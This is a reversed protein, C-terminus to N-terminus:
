QFILGNVEPAACTHKVLLCGIWAVTGTSKVVVAHHIVDAQCKSCLKKVLSVHKELKMQTPVFEAAM